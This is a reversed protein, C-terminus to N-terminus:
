HDINGGSSPEYLKIMENTDLDIITGVWRGFYDTGVQFVHMTLIDEDVSFPKAKKVKLGDDQIVTFDEESTKHHM